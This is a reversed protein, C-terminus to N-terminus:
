NLHQERTIATSQGALLVIEDRWESTRGKGIELEIKPFGNQWGDIPTQFVNCRSDDHVRDATPTTSATVISIEDHGFSKVQM